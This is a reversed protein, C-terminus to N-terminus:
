AGGTPQVALWIFYALWGILNVVWLVGAATLWPDMGDRKM